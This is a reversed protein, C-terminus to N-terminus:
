GGWGAQVLTLEVGDIEHGSIRSGPPATSTSVALPVRRTCPRSITMQRLM